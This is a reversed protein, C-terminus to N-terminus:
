SWWSLINDRLLEVGTLALALNREQQSPFDAIEFGVVREGPLVSLAAQLREAAVPSPTVEPDLLALSLRIWLPREGTEEVATLTAVKPEVEHLPLLRQRMRVQDRQAKSYVRAAISFLTGPAFSPDWVECLQQLSSEYFLVAVDPFESQLEQPGVVQHESLLGSRFTTDLPLAEGPVGGDCPGLEALDRDLRPSFSGLRYSLERAQHGPAYLRVRSDSSTRCGVFAHTSM